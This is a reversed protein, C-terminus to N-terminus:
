IIRAAQPRKRATAGNPKELESSTPKTEVNAARAARSELQQRYESELASASPVVATWDPETVANDEARGKAAHREVTGAKRQQQVRELERIDEFLQRSITRRYRAVGELAKQLFKSEVALLRNLRITDAAIKDLLLVEIHGMPQYHEWLAQYMPEYGEKWLRTEGPPVAQYSFIGKMPSTQSKGQCDPTKPGSPDQANAGNAARPQQSIPNAPGAQTQDPIGLAPASSPGSPASTAESGQNDDHPLDWRRIPAVKNKLNTQGVSLNPYDIEKQFKASVM